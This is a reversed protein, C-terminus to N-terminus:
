WGMCSKLAFVLLAVIVLLFVWSVVYCGKNGARGQEILRDSMSRKRKLVSMHDNNSPLAITQTPMWTGGSEIIKDVGEADFNLKPRVDGAIKESVGKIFTSFESEYASNYCIIAVQGWYHGDDPVSSFAVFSLIAKCIMGDAAFLSLQRSTKPKLFGVRQGFRNELWARHIGDELEIDIDYIDGVMNDASLLGGSDKKSATEFDAYEGFYKPM